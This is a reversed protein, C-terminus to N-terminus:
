RLAHPFFYLTWTCSQNAALQKRYRIRFWLQTCIIAFNVILRAIIFLGVHLLNLFLPHPTSFLQFLACNLSDTKCSNSPIKLRAKDFIQYAHFNGMTTSLKFESAFRRPVINDKWKLLFCDGLCNQAIPNIKNELKANKNTNTNTTFQRRQCNERHGWLLSQNLVCRPVCFFQFPMMM